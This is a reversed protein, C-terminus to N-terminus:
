AGTEVEAVLRITVNGVGIVDDAGVNGVEDGDLRVGNIHTGNHSGLDRVSWAVGDNVLEAHLRSVTPEDSLV